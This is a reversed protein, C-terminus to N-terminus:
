IIQIRGPGVGVEAGGALPLHAAVSVFRDRAAAVLTNQMLEVVYERKM